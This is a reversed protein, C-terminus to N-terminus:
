SGTFYNGLQRGTKKRTGEDDDRQVGGSEGGYFLLRFGIFKTKLERGHGVGKGIRQDQSRENSARGGVGFAVLQESGQGRVHRGAFYHAKRQKVGRGHGSGKEIRGEALQNIRKANRRHTGGELEDVVQRRM